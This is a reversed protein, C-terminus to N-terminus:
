AARSRVACCRSAVRRACSRSCAAARVRSLSMHPGTIAHGALQAALYNSARRPVVVEALLVHTVQCGSCRTRRPRLFLRAGLDGRIERPRGHGWPALVASWSPCALRVQRLQQEVVVVDTDVILM